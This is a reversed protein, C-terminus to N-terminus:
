RLSEMYDAPYFKGDDPVHASPYIRVGGFSNLTYGDRIELKECLDTYATPGCLYTSCKKGTLERMRSVTEYVEALTTM